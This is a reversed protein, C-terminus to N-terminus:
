CFRKEQVGNEEDRGHECPDERIRTMSGRDLVRSVRSLYRM